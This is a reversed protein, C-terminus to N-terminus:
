SLMVALRESKGLIFHCFRAYALSMYAKSFNPMGGSDSRQLRTRECQPVRM